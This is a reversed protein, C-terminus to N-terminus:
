RATSSLSRRTSSTSRACAVRSPRASTSPLELGELHRRGKKGALDYVEPRDLLNRQLAAGIENKARSRQRVLQARRAVWRRLARTGEDPCWVEALYGARAARRAAPHRAPRDKGQGRLDAAAEEHERGRGAGRAPPPDPRDGRRRRDVGAGGRRRSRPEPRVARARAPPVAGPRCLARPGGGPDGGRLVRPPRGVRHIERRGGGGLRRRLLGPPCVVGVSEHEWCM